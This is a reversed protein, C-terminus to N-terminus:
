LYFGGSINPFRINSYVAEYISLTMEAILEHLMYGPMHFGNDERAPFANDMFQFVSSPGGKKLLEFLRHEYSGRIAKIKKLSAKIEMGMPQGTAEDIPAPASAHVFHYKRLVMPNADVEEFGIHPLRSNMVQLLGSILESDKKITFETGLLPLVPFARLYEYGKIEDEFEQNDAIKKSDYQPGLYLKMIGQPQITPYPLSTEIRLPPEHFKM